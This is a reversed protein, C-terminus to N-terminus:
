SSARRLSSVLLRLPRGAVLPVFDGRLLLALFVILSLAAALAAPSRLLTVAAAVLAAVAAPGLVLVGAHKLGAGVFGRWLAGASLLANVVWATIWAAVAGPLGLIPILVAALGIKCVASIAFVAFRTRQANAAVLLRGSTHEIAILLGAPALYKLLVAAGAFKAGLLPVLVAPAVFWVGWSILFGLALMGALVRNSGKPLRRPVPLSRSLLPSAAHGALPIPITATEFFKIASAYIGAAQIGLFQAVLILDTRAWVQYTVEAGAFPWLLGAIRRAEARTIGIGLSGMHSRASAAGLGVLVLGGLPFLVLAWVLPQAFGLVLVIAGVMGLMRCLPEALAALAMRQDAMAPVFLIWAVAAGAQYLSLMAIIAATAATAHTLWAFGVVGLAVIAGIGLQFALLSGMLRARDEVAVRSCERVALQDLGPNMFYYVFTAIAFGYAYQGYGGPGFHRALVVMLGLNVADGTVRAGILWSANSLVSRVAAQRAESPSLAAPTPHSV